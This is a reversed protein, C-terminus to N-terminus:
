RSSAPKSHPDSRTREKASALASPSDSRSREKASGPASAPRPPESPADHRAPPVSSAAVGPLSDKTTATVWSELRKGYKVFVFIGAAVCLAPVLWRWVKVKRRFVKTPASGLSPDSEVAITPALAIAEGSDRSPSRRSPAGGILEDYATKVAQQMRRADPWREKKNYELARDVIGALLDPVGSVVSALRPAPQTMAALLQENVTPAEHVARGTLLKFMTAGLAWIDTRQDVEEWRARAQEPAMYAPTGMTHGARTAMSQTSLERLRAVGFDLLKVGGTRLLFINDPKIDRHIIKKDHAAALVDLLKDTVSLVEEVSVKGKKREWLDSLAEGDLLEMVLFVSGDDDVDDDLVVVAGPHEVKNAAYGERLFRTRAEKNASLEQHLVKVAVRVGNRHTCAYVAAMGGVGILRDIRWKDKLTKGVRAHIRDEFSDTV